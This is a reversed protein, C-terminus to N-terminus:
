AEVHEAGAAFWGKGAVHVARAAEALLQLARAGTGTTTAHAESLRLISPLRAGPAIEGREIAAAVAEAIAASSVRPVGDAV